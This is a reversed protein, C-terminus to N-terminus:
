AGDVGFAHCSGHELDGDRFAARFGLLDGDVEGHLGIAVQGSFAAEDHLVGAVDDELEAVGVAITPVAVAQYDAEVIASGVLCEGDVVAFTGGVVKFDAITDM